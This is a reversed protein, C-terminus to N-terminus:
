IQSRIVSGCGNVLLCSEKLLNRGRITEAIATIGPRCVSKRYSQGEAFM